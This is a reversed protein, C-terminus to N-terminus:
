CMYFRSWNTNKTVIEPFFGRWINAWIDNYKIPKPKRQSLFEKTPIFEGRFDDGLIERLSLGYLDILNIRGALSETVNSMMEFRQSGSLLFAGKEGSKDIYTKIYPFLSPAYQMEDIFVPPEYQLFFEEPIDLAFQLLRTEDM